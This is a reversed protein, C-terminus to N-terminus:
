VEATRETVKTFVMRYLIDEAHDVQFARSMESGEEIGIVAALGARQISLYLALFLFVLDLPRPVPSPGMVVSEYDVM